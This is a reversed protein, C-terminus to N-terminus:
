VNNDIESRFPCSKKFLTDQLLRRDGKIQDQLKSHSAEDFDLKTKEILSFSDDFNKSFFKIRYLPDGLQVSVDTSSDVIQFAIIMSRPYNSLNWWGSLTVLNNNFSTLPHDLFEVWIDESETWFCYEPYSYQIVPNFGWFDDYESSDEIKFYKCSDKLGSSYDMCGDEQNISLCFEFSSTYVFTRNAKHQWVPCDQYSYRDGTDFLEGTRVIDKGPNKKYYFVKHLTM